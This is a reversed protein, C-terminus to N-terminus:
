IECEATKECTDAKFAATKEGSVTYVTGNNYAARVAADGVFSEDHICIGAPIIASGSVDFLAYASVETGKESDQTLVPIGFIGKEPIIITSRNDYPYLVRYNKDLTYEDSVSPNEPDTVDFLRFTATGDAGTNIGLLKTESIEYLSGTFLKSSITGAVKPFKPSSFDIIMTEEGSSIYGKTGVFRVGDAKKQPFIQKLGSIFEMNVDLIYVATSDTLATAVTMCGNKGNVSVGGIVSGEVVYQGAFYISSGSMNFRYIETRSPYAGNKDPEVSVFERTATISSESCYLRKGSGIIALHGVPKDFSSIDTLTIFIYSSEPDKSAIFIEKPDTVTTKGNVTFSPLLTADSSKIQKDTVLCLSNGNLTSFLYTGEQTHERIKEPAEPNSVDYYVATTVTETDFDKKGTIAILVNNKLHMAICEEFAGAVVNDSLTITSVVKMEDESADKIIKIQETMSGTQLNRGTAVVYLYEGSNEVIDADYDGITTVTQTGAVSNGASYIPDGSSSVTGINEQVTKDGTANEEATINANRYGEYLKDLIEKKESAADNKKDSSPQESNHPESPKKEPTKEGLIENVAEEVEEYSQANKVLEVGEYSKYFKDSKVIKVGDARMALVAAIVVAFMAAAAAFRRITIIKSKNTGTKVSFDTANQGENKLMAVMSEKQLKLPIQVSKSSKEFESRLMDLMQKDNKM